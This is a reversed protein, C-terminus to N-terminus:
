PLSCRCPHLSYPLSVCLRIGKPSGHNCVYGRSAGRGSSSSRLISQSRSYGSHWILLDRDPTCRALVDLRSFKPGQPLHWTWVTSVSSHTRLPGAQRLVFMKFSWTWQYPRPPRWVGLRNHESGWLHSSALPSMPWHSPRLWGSVWPKSPRQFGKRLHVLAFSYSCHSYIWKRRASNGVLRYLPRSHLGGQRNIYSVVSINDTRVLVHHGRLNPLFHKLARFVALMELCNIHWTLHHGEWLGRASRGSMVAGWGMLYSDTTLTVRHAGLSPGQSLFWPKKWMDLARLCRRTVKITRLPNGRPSFGKTRLWWQLPRMYLLGFPIVNSGAAMLGLLRQFKRVTLSQRRESGECSHSDSRHSCSVVTGADNNFGVGRRSLHNETSSFACKEQGKATVGTREYPRRRCRSALGGDARVSSIDVLWRHLETHPHGPTAVSGLCCRCVKHFHPTLGVPLASSGSRFYQYAEGGFAFRLFKRHQPLISAHFYADKLDIKVFWDESRIQSVIQKITLM